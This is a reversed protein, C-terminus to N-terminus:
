VRYVRYRVGQPGWGEGEMGGVQYRHELLFGTAYKQYAGDEKKLIDQLCFASPPPPPRLCPCPCLAILLPPCLSPPLRLCPCPRRLSAVTLLGCCCPCLPVPCHPSRLRRLALKSDTATCLRPGEAWPSGPPAPQARPGLLPRAASRLQTCAVRAQVNEMLVFEPMFHEVTAM